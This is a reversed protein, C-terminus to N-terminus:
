NYDARTRDLEQSRACVRRHRAPRPRDSVPRELTGSRSRRQRAHCSPRRNKQRISSARHDQLAELELAAARDHAIKEGHSGSQKSAIAEAERFQGWASATKEPKKTAIRWFFCRGQQRSRPGTARERRIESVCGQLKGGFDLKRGLDYAAQAAAKDDQSDARCVNGFALMSVVVSIAARQPIERFAFAKGLRLFRQATAVPRAPSGIKLITGGDVVVSADIGSYIAFSDGGAGSGGVGGPGGTGGSGGAAGASGADMFGNGVCLALSVCTTACATGPEGMEGSAGIGGHGGNGGGGGNGGNGSQVTGGNIVLAGGWAFIGITSGGSQGASGPGGAAGGCGATGPTGCSTGDPTRCAGATPCNLCNECGGDQGPSGNRGPNGEGGATATGPLAGTPGFATVPANSGAAGPAGPTGDSPPCTGSGPGGDAGGSGSMGDGGNGLVVSVQKLTLTTSESAFIGFVSEGPKPARSKIFLNTLTASGQIDEAHITINDAGVINAVQTPDNLSDDCVQVWQRSPNTGRTHWGGQIEVGKPVHISETYAGESVYILHAGRTNALAAIGASISKCPSQDTGCGSVDAGSGSSVFVQSTDVAVRSDSECVVVGGEGDGELAPDFSGAEIGLISACAASASALGFAAFIATRKM